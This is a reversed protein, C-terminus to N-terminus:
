CGYLLGSRALRHNLAALDGEREDVARGAESKRGCLGYDIWHMESTFHHKDYALVQGDTYVVNSADRRGDRRLVTMLAAAESNIWGACERGV